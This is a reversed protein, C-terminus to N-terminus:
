SHALFLCLQLPNRPHRYGTVVSWQATVKLAGGSPLPSSLVLNLGLSSGCGGHSVRQDSGRGQKHCGPGLPLVACEWLDLDCEPRHGSGAARVQKHCGANGPVFLVPQGKLLPRLADGPRM